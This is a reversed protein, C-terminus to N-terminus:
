HIAKFPPHGTEQNRLMSPKRIRLSCELRFVTKENLTEIYQINIWIPVFPTFFALTSVVEELSFLKGEIRNSNLVNLRMIEDKALLPKGKEIVPFIRFYYENQELGKNQVIEDITKILNGAFIEKNMEANKLVFRKSKYGFSEEILAM